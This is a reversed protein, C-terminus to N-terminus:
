SSSHIKLEHVRRYLSEFFFVRDFPCTFKHERTEAALEVFKSPADSSVAMLLWLEDCNARYAAAKKAKENLKAQMEAPTCSWVWGARATFWHPKKIEIQPRLVTLSVIERPLRDEPHWRNQLRCEPNAAPLSERVLEAIRLALSAVKSKPLNLNPILTIAVVLKPGGGENYKAEAQRIIEDELSEYAQM